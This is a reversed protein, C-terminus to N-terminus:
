REAYQEVGLRILELRADFWRDYSDQVGYTYLSDIEGKTYRTFNGFDTQLLWITEGTEKLYDKMFQSQPEIQKIIIANGIQSGDRTCLTVGPAPGTAKPRLRVALEEVALAIQDDRM